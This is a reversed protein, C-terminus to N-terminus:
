SKAPGLEAEPPPGVGCYGLLKDIARRGDDGITITNPKQRKSGRWSVTESHYMRQVSDFSNGEFMLSYTNRRFREIGLYKPDLVSHRLVFGGDETQVKRTFGLMLRHSKKRPVIRALRLLRLPISKLDLDWWIIDLGQPQGPSCCLTMRGKPKGKVTISWVEPVEASEPELFYPLGYRVQWDQSMLHSPVLLTFIAVLWVTRCTM